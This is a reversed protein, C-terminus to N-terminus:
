TSPRLIGAETIIADLAQDHGQPRICDLRALEFGVGVTFPRPALLALTRDFYGGGYGIRHGAADFGVLPILLAEPLLFDGAAPVRIGHLDTVMDADPSWPRFALAGNVEIVVPLLATFGQRGETVWRQMLPRLDPEKNIPWYFGLRMGSLPRFHTQLLSCIRGSHRAWEEPPLARRRELLAKRLARRDDSPASAIDGTIIGPTSGVDM